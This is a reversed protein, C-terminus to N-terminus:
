LRGTWRGERLLALDGVFHNNTTTFRLQTLMIDALSRYRFDAADSFSTRKGGLLLRKTAQTAIVAESGFRVSLGGMSDIQM